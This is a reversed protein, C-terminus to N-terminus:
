ETLPEGIITSKIHAIMPWYEGSQPQCKRCLEPCGDIVFAELSTLHHWDSPLSLLQPCYFFHLRKLRTMTTLCEPLTKLNPFEHILLTELTDVVGEIWSPFTLIGSLEGIYLNSIMSRQIPRENYLSLNIMQCNLIILDQLKPFIFLPLSELSGCSLITLKELSTLQQAENFLFKMNDCDHFILVQLDNLNSFETLSMFSQKTTVHLERLSILRELGQPLTELETCGTLKLVQLNHLKCISHPLRKIKWNHTLDLVQLHELKAISIPLTEFSSDRLGLYRLYKYRSLWTDLLTESVLGVGEIPFLITRLCRSKPFSANDLSNNEVVSLHRVHEPINRTHSNIALFEEKAVYLALDHILDHLKFTFSYGFHEFDQLFSRSNLDDIYERAIDKLKQSGNRSQVLGIAIWLSTVNDGFFTHDKPHLSFYAFCQRLYSQMQDYSLKLAPLIDDKKQELNWIESDRVFIWKNLDYKSFLSSGLKRVALPVGACKKVIEKGIDVLDPYKVAEGEKFAWKVFLSFCDGPSLGELVYSPLTGMMSAISNSRTTVMIKSGTAGIKILDILEIWKARDDNWIDDLVLLFKQGSLKHRLRNQLQEIDFNSINEEHAVAVSPPDSVPTFTSATSASNIIKIIIQTIDFDDSACAWMKLGFLQDMRKDNFVLKALTTKGLGGIEM